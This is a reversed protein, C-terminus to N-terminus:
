SNGNLNLAGGRRKIEDKWVEDAVRRGYDAINRHLVDLIKDLPANEDLGVDVKGVIIGFCCMFGHVFSAEDPAPKGSKKLIRTMEEFSRDLFNATPDVSM